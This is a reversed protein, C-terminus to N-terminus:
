QSDKSAGIGPQKNTKREQHLPLFIPKLFLVWRELNMNAVVKNVMNLLPEFYSGNIDNTLHDLLSSGKPLIASLLKERSKRRKKRQVLVLRCFTSLEKLYPTVLIRHLIKQLRMDGKMASYLTLYKATPM